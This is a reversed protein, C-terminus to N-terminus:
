NLYIKQTKNIMKDFFSGYDCLVGDMDIYIIKKDTKLSGRNMLHTKQM